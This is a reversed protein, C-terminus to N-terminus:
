ASLAEMYPNGFGSQKAKVFNARVKTIEELQKISVMDPLLSDAKSEDDLVDFAPLLSKHEKVTMGFALMHLKNAEGPTINKYWVFKHFDRIIRWADQLQEAVIGSEKRIGAAEELFVQIGIAAMKEFFEPNHKNIYSLVVPSKSPYIYGKQLGQTTQIEAMIEDNKYGKEFARRVQLHQTNTVRALSSRSWYMNGAVDSYLSGLESPYFTVKLDDM